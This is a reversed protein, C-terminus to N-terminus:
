LAIRLSNRIVKKVAGLIDETSMDISSTRALKVANLIGIFFIALLAEIDRRALGALGLSDPALSTLLKFVLDTIKEIKEEIRTYSLAESLLINIFDLDGLLEPIFEDILLRLREEPSPTERLARELRVYFEEWGEKVIDQIIEDKSRFYTYITGVPLGTEKVIDSVSTNYFGKHSFLMKSSQLITARKSEDKMRAM